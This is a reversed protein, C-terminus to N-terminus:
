RDVAEVRHIQAGTTDFVRDKLSLVFARTAPM